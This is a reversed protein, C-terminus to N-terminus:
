DKTEAYLANQRCYDTSTVLPEKVTNCIGAEPSSLKAKGKNGRHWLDVHDLEFSPIILCRLYPASFDPTYEYGRGNAADVSTQKAFM